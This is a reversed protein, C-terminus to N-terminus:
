KVGSLFSVQWDLVAVLQRRGIGDHRWLINSIWLDGHILVNPIGLEVPITKLKRLDVLSDFVYLLDDILRAQKRLTLKVSEVMGKVMQFRYSALIPGGVKLNQQRYATSLPADFKGSEEIDPNELFFSHLPIIGDIVQKADDVSLNEWLSTVRGVDSLDEMVIIGQRHEKSFRRFGFVRPVAISTALGKSAVFEYFDCENNHLARDMGRHFEVDELFERIQKVGDALEIQKAMELMTESTPVKVVLTAPLESSDDRWDPTLRAVVSLFGQNVGLKELKKGDGFRAETKLFGRVLEELETWSLLAGLICEDNVNM